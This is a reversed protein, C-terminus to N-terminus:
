RGTASFHMYDKLSRWDGGWEWGQATFARVVASGRVLMGPRVDDRRTYSRALEPLIVDRKVYPNMFPNVDVARGYAHESWNSSGAASRCVFASTTNGDGTPPADREAQTTVVMREIPFRERYLTRFAKVMVPAATRHVLLEGTHPRGDFGLFTVTVYRLDELAVPCGPSWTSRDVVAPPVPSVTSRFTADPPAPLVDVTAISRPDLEPPTKGMRGFGDERLELVRRGLWGPAPTAGTVPSPSATSPTPTMGPAPSTATPSPPGKVTASATGPAVSAPARTALPSATDAGGGGCAGLGLALALAPAAARATGRRGATRAM